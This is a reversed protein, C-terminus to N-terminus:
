KLSDFIGWNKDYYNTEISLFGGGTVILVFFINLFFCRHIGKRKEILLLSVDLQIM